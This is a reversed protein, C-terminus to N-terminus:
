DLGPLGVASIKAAAVRTCEIYRPTRDDTFRGTPGGLTLAARVVGHGDVIPFSLGSSGLEREGHVLQYGRERGADIQQRLEEAFGPGYPSDAAVDGVIEPAAQLLIKGAAGAWLPYPVGVPIVSRVTATGECQAVVVRTLGQRIYLNVTEGTDASLERMVDVVAEPPAWTRGALRVWRLMEPGLSYSGDGRTTLVNRACMTAVLRVVTTKPLATGDVLEKLTRTPHAVDFMELLDIVRTVSRVGSDSVSPREASNVPVATM